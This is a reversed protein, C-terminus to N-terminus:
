ISVLRTVQLNAVTAGTLVAGGRSTVTTLQQTQQPQVQVQTATGALTGTQAVQQSLQLKPKQLKM